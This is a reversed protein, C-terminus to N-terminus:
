RHGVRTLLLLLVTAAMLGDLRDLLGGHGPILTGSDKVGFRRKAGSEFLDGVQAAAALATGLLPRGFCLGVLSASVLGGAAGSWTKSPSIAPALKPGGVLRGAAYAGSDSAWVALMLLLVLGFGGPRVRLLLLAAGPLAVYFVGLALAPRGAALFITAAVLGLTLADRELGAAVLVGLSAALVAPGFRRARAMAAWEFACGGMGLVIAVSWAWSGEVLAALGLPALLAASGLRTGLDGRRRAGGATASGAEASAPDAHAPDAVAPDVLVPDALVPM